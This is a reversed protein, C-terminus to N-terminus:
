PGGEAAAALAARRRHEPLTFGKRHLRKLLPGIRDVLRERKAALLVDAVDFVEIGLEAARERGLTDDMLVLAPGAHECALALTSAEGPDLGSLRWTAMPTPAARIWGARMAAILEAAGPRGDGARVEDVVARSVVVMGFLTHLLNLCGAAALGILPSADAAVLRASEASHKDAASNGEARM